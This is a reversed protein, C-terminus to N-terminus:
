FRGGNPKRSYWLRVRDPHCDLVGNIIAANEFFVPTPVARGLLRAAPEFIDYTMPGLQDDSWNVFQTEEPKEPREFYCEFERCGFCPRANCKGFDTRRNYMDVYKALDDGEEPRANATLRIEATIQYEVDVLILSNRQTFVDSGIGVVIPKLSGPQTLEKKADRMSIARTLESRLVNYFHGRKVVGISHILYAFSRKKLISELIGRASSPTMLPYSVREV